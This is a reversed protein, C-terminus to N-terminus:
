ENNKAVYLGNEESWEAYYIDKMKTYGNEKLLRILWEKNKGKCKLEDEIIEGENVVLSSPETVREDNRLVSLKGSPELQAFRVEKLSFIGQERLMTRFQEMELKNKEFIEPKVRGHEVLISPEGKLFKRFRDNKQVAFDFLFILTGWLAIAYVLHLVNVNDQYLSEELIGGLVIAYIFDIPTVQSMDKKGLIRVCILLTILGIIIKLSIAGFM